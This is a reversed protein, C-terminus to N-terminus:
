EDREGATEGGRPDEAPEVTIRYVNIYPNDAKERIKDREEFAREKEDRRYIAQADPSDAEGCIVVPETMGLFRPPADNRVVYYQEREDESM